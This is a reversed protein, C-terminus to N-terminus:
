AEHGLEIFHVGRNIPQFVRAGKQSWPPAMIHHMLFLDVDEHITEAHIILDGEQWHRGYLMDKILRWHSLDRIPAHLIFLDYMQGLIDTAGMLEHVPSVIWYIANKM